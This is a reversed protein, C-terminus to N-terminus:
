RKRTRKLGKIWVKKPGKERIWLLAQTMADVQDDRRAAPFALIEPKWEERVWPQDAPHPIFIQEAEWVPLIANAREEKSSGQPNWGQIREIESHLTAIVKPGNAKLEVATAAIKRTDKWERNLDRIAKLTETFSMKGRRQALLYRDAAVVGWIQGVVFDSDDSRRFTCDWSAILYQFEPLGGAIWYRLFKDKFLTGGEPAPDQNYQAEFHRSGLQKRKRALVEKSLRVPDLLEGEKTRPDYNELSPISYTIKGPYEAPLNCHVFGLEKVHGPLDRPHLRQATVIIASENEDNVRTTLTGDYWRIHEPLQKKDSYAHRADLADDVIIRDADAGTIQQGTTKSVRQGGATNVFNGKAKQGEKGSQLKWDPRFHQQYWPSLILERNRRADRFVVLDIASVALYQLGPDRLWEWAPWMVSILRSKLTRPPLTVLLFQIHGATVAELHACIADHHWRWSLAKRQEHVHWGGQCFDRLNRRYAAADVIRRLVAPPLAAFARVQDPTM